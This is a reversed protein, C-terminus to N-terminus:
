FTSSNDFLDFPCSELVSEKDRRRAEAKREPDSAFHPVSNFFVRQVKRIM